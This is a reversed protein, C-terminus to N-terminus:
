RRDSASLVTETTPSALLPTAAARSIRRRPPRTSAESELRRAEPSWAERPAADSALVRGGLRAILRAAAVGSKALGVVSVTKDALSRRYIAGREGNGSVFIGTPYPVDRRLTITIAM